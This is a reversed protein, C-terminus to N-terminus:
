PDRREQIAIAIEFGSGAPGATLTVTGAFSGEIYPFRALTSGTHNSAGSPRPGPVQRGIADILEKVFSARIPARLPCFTTWTRILSYEVIGIAEQTQGDHSVCGPGRVFEAFLDPPRFADAFVSAYPPGALSSVAPLSSAGPVATVPSSPTTVSAVSATVSPSDARGLTDSPRGAGLQAGAMFAIAGVVLAVLLARPVTRPAKTPVVPVVPVVSSREPDDRRGYENPRM